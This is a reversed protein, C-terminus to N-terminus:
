RAARSVSTARTGKPTMAPVFTVRTDVTLRTFEGDYDDAHFFYDEGNVGTVFGFGREPILRAIAGNMPEGFTWGAQSMGM